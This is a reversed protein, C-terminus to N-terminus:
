IHCHRARSRGPSNQDAQRSRQCDNRLNKKEIKSEMLSKGCGKPLKLRPLNRMEKAAKEAISIVEELEDENVSAIEDLVGKTFPSRVKISESADRWKGGILIKRKM